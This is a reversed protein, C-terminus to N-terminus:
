KTNIFSRCFRFIRNQLYLIEIHRIIKTNTKVILTNISADPRTTRNSEVEFTTGQVKEITEKARQVPDSLAAEARADNRPAAPASQLLHWIGAAAAAVILFLIAVVLFSGLLHNTASHPPDKRTNQDPKNAAPENGEHTPQQSPQPATLELPKPLPAQEVQPPLQSPTRPATSPTPEPPAPPNKLHITKAHASPLDPIPLDAQLTDTPDDANTSPTHNLADTRHKSSSLKLKFPKPDDSPNSM